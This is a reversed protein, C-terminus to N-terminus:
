KDKRFISAIKQVMKCHMRLLLRHQSNAFFIRPYYLFITNLIDVVRIPILLEDHNYRPIDGHLAMFLYKRVRFLKKRPFFGQSKNVKDATIQSFVAVGKLQMKQIIDEAVKTRSVVISSGCKDVGIVEDLWADAFSLDAFEAAQDICVTCRWPTYSCFECSYYKLYQEEYYSEDNNKVCISLKGPWGSGRYSINSINIEDIGLQNTYNNTASFTKTTGCFIGLHLVIREKLKKNILEAKRIGQIHCPLGVVAYKGEVKLIENIVKNAPVPCYKSGCASIVEQETRAIFPEPIIPNDKSMRTVLAGDILGERLAFLIVSTVLGGSSSKYRVKRDCAHSLYCNNYHGLLFDSSPQNFIKQNLDKFDVFKGPCVSVCMGCFTCGAKISPLYIAKEKDLEMIISSQPCIGECTGCGTCLGHSVVSEVNKGSHSM